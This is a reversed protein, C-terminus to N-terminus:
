TSTRHTTLVQTPATLDATAVSGGAIALADARGDLLAAMQTGHRYIGILIQTAFFAIAVASIRVTLSSIDTWAVGDLLSGNGSKEQQTAQLNNLADSAQKFLAAEREVDTFKSPDILDRDRVLQPDGLHTRDRSLDFITQGWRDPSVEGLEGRYFEKESEPLRALVRELAALLDPDSDFGAEADSPENLSLSTFDVDRQRAFDLARVLSARKDPNLAQESNGAATGDPPALEAVGQELVTVWQEPKVDELRDTLRKRLDAGFGELVDNLASRVDSAAALRARRERAVEDM